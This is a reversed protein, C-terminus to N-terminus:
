STREVHANSARFSPLISFRIQIFRFLSPLFSFSGNLKCLYSKGNVPRLHEDFQTPKPAAPAKMPADSRPQSLSLIDEFTAAWADRRTMPEKIGFLKRTTAIMSTHDFQSTAFPKQSESPAGVRTGRPILPSIALLPVRVGLRNFKVDSDPSSPEDDPSPSSPPGAKDWLGGHEDWTILLLVNGKDWDPSARVLEYTEKLLAEGLAIDHDPHQDDSGLSETGNGPSWAARPWIWSWDPLTGEKCDKKFEDWAVLHDLNHAM